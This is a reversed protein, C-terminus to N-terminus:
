LLFAYLLGIATLVLSNSYHYIIVLEWLGTLWFTIQPSFIRSTVTLHNNVHNYIANNFASIKGVTFDAVQDRSM